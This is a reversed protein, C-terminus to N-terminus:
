VHSVMEILNLKKSRKAWQSLNHLGQRIWVSTYIMWKKAIVALHYLVNSWTLRDTTLYLCWINGAHDIDPLIVSDDYSAEKVEGFLFMKTFLKLLIDVFWQKNGQVKTWDIKVSHIIAYIDDCSKTREDIMSSFM